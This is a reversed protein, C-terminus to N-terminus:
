VISQGLQMLAEVIAPAAFFAVIGTIITVLKMPDWRTAVSWAIFVLTVLLALGRFLLTVGANFTDIASKGGAFVEDMSTAQQALAPEAAVLALAAAAAATGILWRTGRMVGVEGDQM